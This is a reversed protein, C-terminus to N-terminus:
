QPFTRGKLWNEKFNQYPQRLFEPLRSESEKSQVLTVGFILLVNTVFFFLLEEVPLHKIVEKQATKEPAIAWTGSGIAVSDAAGLYATTPLLSAAILTRHRWLIDGGFATQLMIPPLAWALILSRYRDPQSTRFVRFMADMWVLGLTGTVLLSNQRVTQSSKEEDAPIRRALYQWVSGTLVSQLVFFSYEEIPVWGITYGTVLEPDYSWIKSAVLYNDWPTTYLVAVAVHGLLVDAEPWNQLPNPLDKGKHRDNWLLFRLILLPIVVFRGLFGFYKM